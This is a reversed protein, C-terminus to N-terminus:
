QDIHRNTLPSIFFYNILTFTVFWLRGCLITTFILTFNTTTKFYICELAIFWTHRSSDLRVMSWQVEEKQCHPIIHIWEKVHSYDGCMHSHFWHIHTDSIISKRMKSLIHSRGWTFPYICINSAHYVKERKVVDWKDKDLLCLLPSLSGLVTCGTTKRFKKPIM